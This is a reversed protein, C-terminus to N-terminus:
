HNCAGAYAFTAILYMQTWNDLLQGDTKENWFGM